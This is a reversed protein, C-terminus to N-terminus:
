LKYRVNSRGRLEITDAADNYWVRGCECGIYTHVRAPGASGTRYGWVDTARHFTLLCHWYRKWRAIWITLWRNM